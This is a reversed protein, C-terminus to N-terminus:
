CGCSLGAPLRVGSISFHASWVALRFRLRCGSVQIRVPAPCDHFQFVSVFRAPCTWVPIPFWLRAAPIWAPAPFDCWLGAPFGFGSISFRAPCSWRSFQFWFGSSSSYDSLRFDDVSWRDSAQRWSPVWFHMQTSSPHSFSHGGEILVDRM